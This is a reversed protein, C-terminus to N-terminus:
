SADVAGGRKLSEKMRHIETRLTGDFVHGDVLIYFGGLLDSDVETKIAITRNLRKQLIDHILAVQEESMEVAAVVRAETIGQKQNASAIFVDLAPVIFAERKKDIMLCLLGMLHNSIRDAFTQKLLDQKQSYVIHPHVLFTQVEANRLSDHVLVAQALDEKLTGNEESLEMLANAYRNALKDM